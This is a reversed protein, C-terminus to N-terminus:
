HCCDRMGLETLVAEAARPVAAAVEPTFGLGYNADSIGVSLVVLRGPLRGLAQGLAYAQPIGVAHSSVVRAAPERGPTWRQIRGPAVGVGMAADVVVTVGAVSWADLIAGPEGTAKVVQLGPIERRAVDDAIALGVGDDRRFSNGVGIVVSARM